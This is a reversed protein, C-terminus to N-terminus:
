HIFAAQGDTQDYGASFLDVPFPSVCQSQRVGCVVM